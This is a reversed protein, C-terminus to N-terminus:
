PNELINAIEIYLEEKNKQFYREQRIKRWDVVANEIYEKIYKEVDEQREKDFLYTKMFSEVKKVGEYEELYQEITRDVYLDTWNICNLGMKMKKYYECQWYQSYNIPLLFCIEQELNCTELFNGLGPSLFIYRAKTMLKLYDEHTVTIIKCKTTELKQKLFEMLEHGCCVNIEVKGLIASVTEEIQEIIKRYFNFVLKKDMMYSDAGGLGILISRNIEDKNSRVAIMDRLPGVITKHQIEGGIRRLNEQLNNLSDVIVYNDVYNLESPINRWMWFLNDVYVTKLRKRVGVIISEINEFSLIAKVDSHKNLLQEIQKMDKLDCEVYETFINSEKAQYLTIGKGAFIFSDSTYKGLQKMFYIATIVPGFGFEEATVLIM